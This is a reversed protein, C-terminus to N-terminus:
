YPKTLDWAPVEAAHKRIWFGRRFLLGPMPVEPQGDQALVLPTGSWNNSGDYNETKWGNDWQWIQDGSSLIGYLGSATWFATRPYPNGVLFVGENNFSFNQAEVPVRGVFTLATDATLSKVWFGRKASIEEGPLSGTWSSGDYTHNRFGNVPANYYSWVEARGAGFQRGIVSDIDSYDPILPLSVLEMTPPYTAVFINVKGVAEASSLLNINAGAKLGKYYAESTGGGVQGSHRLTKGETGFGPVPVTNTVQLWGPIEDTYVGSGDGTLAYVDPTVDETWSVLIDSGQTDAERTIDLRIFMSETRINPGFQSTNGNQDTATASLTTGGTLGSLTTSWGGAANATAAGLYTRGEGSGTPDPAGTAFVEVSAYPEATGMVLALRTNPNVAAVEISPAPFLNNGDETLIIGPNNNDYISNQSIHNGRANPGQVALGSQSNNAIVNGRILNHAVEAGFQYAAYLSTSAMIGEGMNGMAQTGAANTGIYNGRVENSNTVAGWDGDLIIGQAANGSIVNRGAATGDGIRNHCGGFLYIGAAGGLAAAGNTGIYNGFVENSNTEIHLNAGVAAGALINGEGPVLGGIRNNAAGGAIVLNSLGNSILATGAANTGFYNGAVSNNSTGVASFRLGDAVNGSIVNRGGPTGDGIRNNQSGDFIAVGNLNNALAATGDANCGIYNGLIQNNSSNNFLSLGDNTNGSIVNRGGSTGNGILQNSADGLYVGYGNTGIYNGLVQNASHVSEIDLGYQVNGSIVNGEGAGAGGVINGSAEDYVFMGVFNGLSVTGTRDLGIINGSVQNNKTNENYLSIGNENGSVLNGSIRNNSAGNALFVGTGFNGAATEGTVDTGIYNNFIACQRAAPGSLNIGDNFGNITLGEISCNAAQIVLGDFAGGGPGRLEIEPGHPNNYTESTPQTSAMLRVEGTLPPLAAPVNIRWFRVGSESIAEETPIAFTIAHGPDDNNDLICQRLSGWGSDDTNYVIFKPMALRNRSFQSTYGGSPGFLTATATIMDGQAAGEVTAIWNGGADAEASGLFVRGEGGALDPLADALFIEVVAGAAATGVVTTQAGINRAGVILPPQINNNSGAELSIGLRNNAEMTNRSVLIYNGGPGIGIGDAENYGIYNGIVAENTAPPYFPTWEPVFIGYGTNGAIKNDPGVVAGDNILMVGTTNGLGAGVEGNANTGIYNGKLSAHNGLLVGLNSASIVNRGAATGDGIRNGVGGEINCNTNPLPNLGTADLGFYNGLVETSTGGGLSIGINGSGSVLNNVIRIYREVGVFYIGCVSNPVASAGSADTGIYNGTVECSDAASGFFVGYANGSIVNRGAATGDGIRSYTIPVGGIFNFELVVGYFNGKIAAGTVDTGLYCGKVLHGTGGWLNIGADNFNNIALGEITCGSPNASSTGLGDAYDGALAGDIEVEPGYPNVNGWLSTQTSAIIGVSETIAPLPSTPKISWYTYGSEVSAMSPPINFTITDRGPHDNANLICQRLSGLGANATTIVVFPEVSTATNQSFQSTNGSRDTATATMTAIETLNYFATWRGSGDATASALYTRGEGAGSGDPAGTAFVEVTANPLTLGSASTLGVAELTPAPMWQNAGSWLAIGWGSNDYMSNRSFTNFNTDGYSGDAKIGDGANGAILNGYIYNSSAGWDLRIGSDTPVTGNPLAAAGSVDTGIYNGLVANNSSDTSLWLGGLDNGSILNGEGAIYGGITNNTSASLVLGNDGNGAATAGGAGTGIYNGKITNGSSSSLRIGEYHNGSIVNRGIATGDGIFNNSGTLLIGIENPRSFLGFADTGVYNGTIRAGNGTVRIGVGPYCWNVALGRVQGDNAQLVLGDFTGGRLEVEPGLANTNGRNSTQTTADIVTGANTITPLAFSPQIRWYGNSGDFIYGPDSVPINFTIAVPQGVANANLICQRLSGAGSDNTNTVVYDASQPYYYVMVGDSPVGNARVTLRYYGSELGSPASFSLATNAIGWQASSMPYLSSSLDYLTGAASQLYLRPYDNAGKFLTGTVPYPTLPRIEQPFSSSNNVTTVTPKLGPSYIYETFLESSLASGTGGLGGMTLVKGNPLLITRHATRGINLLGAPSWGGTVPDYIECDTLIWNSYGAVALVKGSSLAVPVHSNRGTIMNGTPTWQGTAPDYIECSNLPGGSSGGSVLIKGNGLVTAGYGIRGISLSSAPTWQGTAQDYLECGALAVGAPDKGGVAMIKGNPLPVLEFDRRIQSMSGTMTWLGTDPNYLECSSLFEDPDDYTSHVGGATLVKGNPLLCSAQTDRATHLDGTRTWQGTATDYLECTQTSRIEYGGVVLVRGNPLLVQNHARRGWTMRGTMSWVGSAIDYVEASPSFLFGGGMSQGGSVLIKGNPMLTACFAWERPAQMNGSTTWLAAAPDYVVSTNLVISNAGGAVMVQGGPLLTASHQYRPAPLSPAAEWTGNATDYIEVVSQPYQGAVRYNYGGAVMVKGNPMLTASYDYRETALPSTGSWAGGAPDYLYCEARPSGYFGAVALVQGTPLLTLADKETWSRPAPLGGTLSWTGSGPDYLECSAQYGGANSGGVALVKGDPLLVAPRMRCATSMSGTATWAGTAPDYLECSATYNSPDWISVRGDLMGGAIMVKGNPLLTLSFEGRPINLSGTLAWTGTAPDYVECTAMYYTPLSSNYGGVLLAKGNPMLVLRCRGPHSFVMDGTSSWSGTAPNFLQCSQGNGAILVKGNPLLVSGHAVRASVMNGTPVWAAGLAATALCLM